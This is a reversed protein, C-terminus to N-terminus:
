TKKIEIKEQARQIRDKLIDPNCPKILYDFSGQKMGQLATEASGHGTLIIIETDRHQQKIGKLTEMGDTQPTLVDMIVVDYVAAAMMELAETGSSVADVLFGLDKMQQVLRKRFRADDDM